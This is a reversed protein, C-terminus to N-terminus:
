EVAAHITVEAGPRALYVGLEQEDGPVVDGPDHEDDLTLRTGPALRALAAALGHAARSAGIGYIRITLPAATLTEPSETFNVADVVDKQRLVNHAATREHLYRLHPLHRTCAGIKLQIRHPEYERYDVRASGPWFWATLKDGDDRSAVFAAINHFMNGSGPEREKEGCVFCCDLEDLGIGRSAFKLHEGDRADVACIEQRMQNEMAGYLASIGCTLLGQINQLAAQCTVGGPSRQQHHAAADQLRSRASSLAHRVDEIDQSLWDRFNKKM